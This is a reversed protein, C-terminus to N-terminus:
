SGATPASMRGSYDWASIWTPELAIVVEDDARKRLWSALSENGSGLYRGILRDLVVDAGEASITAHGHGRVGRYPVENTAVEFGCRAEAQLLRVIRADHQTACRLVGDAYEFWLSCILPFEDPGRVAVRMPGEYARLFQEIGSLDWSSRKSVEPNM